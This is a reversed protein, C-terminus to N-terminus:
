DFNIDRASAVYLLFVVLAAAAAAAGLAILWGLTFVIVWFLLALALATRM